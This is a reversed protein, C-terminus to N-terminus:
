SIVDLTPLQPPARRGVLRMAFDLRSIAQRLESQFVVLVVVLVILTVADLIWGTTLLGLHRALISAVRIVLLGLAIRLAQVERQEL